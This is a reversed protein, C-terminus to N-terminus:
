VMMSRRRAMREQVREAATKGVIGVGDNEKERERTSAGRELGAGSSRAKVVKRGVNEKGEDDDLGAATDVHITTRRGAKRERRERRAASADEIRATDSPTTIAASSSSSSSKHPERSEMAARVERAEREERRQRERAERAERAETRAADLANSLSTRRLSSSVSIRSSSSSASSPTTIDDDAPPAINSALVDSVLGSTRRRRHTSITTSSSPLHPNNDPSDESKIIDDLEKNPLPLKLWVRHNEDDEEDNDDNDENDESQINFLPTPTAASLKRAALDPTPACTSSITSSPTTGMGTGGTGSSSMSSGRRHKGEGTVADVLKADERRMKTRLSPEAYSVQPRARRATRGTATTVSDADAPAPPPTDKDRLSRHTSIPTPKIAKEDLLPTSLPKESCSSSKLDKLSLKMPSALDSNTSKPGLAKRVSSTNGSGISRQIGGGRVHRREQREQTPSPVREPADEMVIDELVLAEPQDELTLTRLKDLDVHRRANSASRQAVKSFRFDLEDEVTPPSLDPSSEPEVFKQRPPQKRPELDTVAVSDRRRRPRRTELFNEGEDSDNDSLSPDTYIQPQQPPLQIEDFNLSSIRRPESPISNRRSRADESISPLMGPPMEGPVYSERMLRSELVATQKAKREAREKPMELERLLENVEAVKEQLKKQTVAVTDAFARNKDREDLQVQMHIVTRHLSLNEELLRSNELELARIRVAQQANARAFEENAKNTAAWRQKFALVNANGAAGSAAENLRAM